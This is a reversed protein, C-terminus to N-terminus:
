ALRTRSGWRRYCATAVLPVGLFALALAGPEPAATFTTVSTSGGAGNPTIATHGGLFASTATTAVFISLTTGNTTLPSFAFDLTDGITGPRGGVVQQSSPGGFFGASLPAGGTGNGANSVNFNSTNFGMVNAGASTSVATLDYLFGLQGSANKYVLQDLNVIAGNSLTVGPNDKQEVFTYGSPVSGINNLSTFLTGAPLSTLGGAARAAATASAVLALAVAAARFARSHVPSM